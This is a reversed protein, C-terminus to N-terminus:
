VVDESLDKIMPMLSQEAGREEGGRQNELSWPWDLAALCSQSCPARWNHGCLATRSGHLSRDHSLGTLVRAPMGRESPPGATIEMTGVGLLLSMESMGLGM